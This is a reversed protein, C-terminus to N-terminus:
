SLRNVKESAKQRKLEEYIKPYRNKLDEIYVRAAGLKEERRLVAKGGVKIVDWDSPVDAFLEEAVEDRLRKHENVKKMLDAIEEDHYDMRKLWHLKQEDDGFDVV